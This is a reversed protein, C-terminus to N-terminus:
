RIAELDTYAHLRTPNEKAQINDSTKLRAAM